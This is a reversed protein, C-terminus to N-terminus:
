PRVHMWAPDDRDMLALWDELAIGNQAWRGPERLMVHQADDVLFYRLNLETGFGREAAAVTLAPIQGAALGSFGAFFGLVPDRTFALLAGRGAPIRRAQYRVFGAADEACDPCDGPYRVNWTTRTLEGRSFPVGCDDVMDVRRGEYRTAVDLWHYAAGFGGASSGSLNVRSPDPYLDQIRDFAARANQVGVHFTLRGDYSRIADGTHADGTCYPIFVWNSDEQRTIGAGAGRNFGGLRGGPAVDARLKEAGYGGTVDFALPTEYCTAADWCGGGGMMFITLRTAGTPSPNVGIGTLSGDACRMGPTPVWTWTGPPADVPEHVVRRLRVRSRQRKPDRATLTATGRECGRGRLSVQLRVRGVDGCSPWAARMAAGRRRVTAGAPGCGELSVTKGQVRLTSFGPIGAVPSFRPTELLYLGDGCPRSGAWAPLVALLFTALCARFGNTV